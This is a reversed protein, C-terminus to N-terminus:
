AQEEDEQEERQVAFAQVAPEEEEKKEEERQVAPAAAAPPATAPGGAMVHDANREAAQEFADSPDSVLIGGPAPTGSVPGSEQQVVHTLEHALLRQGGESQPDYMGSRFVVNTGVTYAHANVSKASDSAKSDTHVRVGSFDHDFRSEMVTRTAADLPEGGGSEVVDRVPSREEDDAVLRSVQANGATRQLALVARADLHETRPAAARGATEPRDFTAAHAAHPHLDREGLSEHTHM